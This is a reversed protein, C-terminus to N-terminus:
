EELGAELDLSDLDEESEEELGEAADNLGAEKEDPDKNLNKDDDM